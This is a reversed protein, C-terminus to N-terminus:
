SMESQTLAKRQYNTPHAQQQKKNYYYCGLGFAAIVVIVIGVVAGASLHKGKGSGGHNDNYQLLSFLTLHTCTCM